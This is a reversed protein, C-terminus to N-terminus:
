ATAARFKKGLGLKGKLGMEDVGWKGGHVDLFAMRCMESGM